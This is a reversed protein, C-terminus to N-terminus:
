RKSFTLDESVADDIAYTYRLKDGDLFLTQISTETGRPVALTFHSLTITHTLVSKSFASKHCIRIFDAGDRVTSCRRKEGINSFPARDRFRSPTASALMHLALNEAPLEVDRTTPYTDVTVSLREKSANEVWEGAFANQLTNASVSEILDAEAPEEPPTASEDAAPAACAFVMLSLALFSAKANM